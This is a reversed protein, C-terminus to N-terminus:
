RVGLIDPPHTHSKEFNQVRGLISAESSCGHRSQLIKVIQFNTLIHLVNHTSAHIVLNSTRPFLKAHNSVCDISTVKPRLFISDSSRVLSVSIKPVPGGQTQQLLPSVVSRINARV